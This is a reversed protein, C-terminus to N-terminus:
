GRHALATILHQCSRRFANTDAEPSLDTFGAYDGFERGVTGGPAGLPEMFEVTGYQPVSDVGVCSVETCVTFWM